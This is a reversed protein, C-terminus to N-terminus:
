MMKNNQKPKKPLIPTSSLAEHKSLLSEVVQAVGGVESMM